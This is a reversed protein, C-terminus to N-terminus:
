RLPSKGSMVLRKTGLIFARDDIYPHEKQKGGGGEAKESQNQAEGANKDMKRFRVEEADV